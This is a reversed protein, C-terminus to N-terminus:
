IFLFAAGASLIFVSGM